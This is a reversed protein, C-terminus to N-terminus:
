PFTSRAGALLATAEAFSAVSLKDAANWRAEAGATGAATEPHLKLYIV